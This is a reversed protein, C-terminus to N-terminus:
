AAFPLRADVDCAGPEVLRRVGEVDVGLERRVDALPRDWMEDWRVGFLPKARKGLLWGRTIEDLLPAPSVRMEMTKVSALAVLILGLPNVLQALIFAQLGIEGRTDSGFDTVPHWIDHTNEIHVVVHQQPTDNARKPFSRPHINWARCHEHVARGLTGPACAALDDPDWRIVRRTLLQDAALPSSSRLSEVAAGLDRTSALRTVAELVEDLRTPDRYVRYAALAIRARDFMAFRRDDPYVVFM